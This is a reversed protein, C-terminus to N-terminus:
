ANQLISICKQLSEKWEPVAVTYTSKIKEEVSALALEADKQAAALVNAEARLRDAQPKSVRYSSALTTGPDLAAIQQRRRDIQVDIELLAGLGRQAERLSM